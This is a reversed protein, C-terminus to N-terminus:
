RKAHLTERNNLLFQEILIQLYQKYKQMWLLGTFNLIIMFFQQLQNQITTTTGTLWHLSNFYNYSLLIYLSYTNPSTSKMYQLHMSILLFVLILVRAELLSGRLALRVKTLPLVPQALQVFPLFCFSPEVHKPCNSTVINIWEENGTKARRTTNRSLWYIYFCVEPLM